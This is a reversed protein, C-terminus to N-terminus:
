YQGTLIIRGAQGLLHGHVLQSYILALPVGVCTLSGAPTVFAMILGFLLSYGLLLLLTGLNARVDEWLARVELFSSFNGTQGFRIAGMWYIAALPLGLLLIFGSVCLTVCIWLLGGLDSNGVLGGTFMIICLFPSLPLMYLLAAIFAMTGDALVQGLESVDPIVNRQHRIVNRATRVQYGLPIIPVVIGVLMLLGGVIFKVPWNEEKFPFTLAKTFDM